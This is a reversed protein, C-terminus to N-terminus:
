GQKRGLWETFDKGEYWEFFLRKSVKIKTGVRVVHFKNSNVLEYAQRRGCNLLRQIHQVELAEPLENIDIEERQTVM